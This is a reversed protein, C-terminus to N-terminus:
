HKLIPIWGFLSKIEKQNKRQNIKKPVPRGKPKTM